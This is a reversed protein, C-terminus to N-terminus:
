PRPAKASGVELCGCDPAPGGSRAIDLAEARCISLVEDRLAAPLEEIRPAREGARFWRLFM